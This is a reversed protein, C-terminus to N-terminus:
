KQKILGKTAITYTFCQPISQPTSAEGTVKVGFKSMNAQVSNTFFPESFIIKYLNEGAQLASSIKARSISTVKERKEYAYDEKYFLKTLAEVALDSKCRIHNQDKRYRFNPDKTGHFHYNDLDELINLFDKKFEEKINIYVVKPWNEPEGPERLVIIINEHWEYLERFFEELLLEGEDNLFKSKLQSRTSLEHLVAHITIVIGDLMKSQILEKATNLKNVDFLDCEIVDIALENYRHFNKLKFPVYNQVFKNVSKFDYELLLGFNACSNEIETYLETGDGGGLSIFGFNTIDFNYDDIKKLVEFGKNVASIKSGALYKTQELSETPLILDELAKIKNENRKILELLIKTKTRLDSIKLTHSSDDVSKAIAFALTNLDESIKYLDSYLM